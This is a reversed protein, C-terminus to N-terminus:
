ECDHDCDTCDQNFYFTGGDDQLYDDNNADNDSCVNTFMGAGSVSRLQNDVLKVSKFQDFLINQVKM